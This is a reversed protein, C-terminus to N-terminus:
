HAGAPDRRLRRVTLQLLRADASARHRPRPGIEAAVQQKLGGFRLAEADDLLSRLHELRFLPVCGAADYLRALWPYDHAWGDCYVTQGALRENLTRAVEAASRGHRLALARPIGHLAEAAPDWHHWDPEPRILSCWGSGDPLVFGVEIPYSDRGFGSAEIDLVAPAAPERAARPAASSLIQM